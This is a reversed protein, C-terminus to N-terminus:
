IRAPPNKPIVILMVKKKKPSWLVSLMLAGTIADVPGRNRNKNETTKKFSFGFSRTNKPITSENMPINNITKEGM